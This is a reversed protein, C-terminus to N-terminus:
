LACELDEFYKRDIEIGDRHFLMGKQLDYKIPLYSKEDQLIYNLANQDQWKLNDGTDRVYTM